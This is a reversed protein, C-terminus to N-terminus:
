TGSSKVIRQQDGGRVPDSGGADVHQKRAGIVREVLGFVGYTSNPAAAFTAAPAQAAVEDQEAYCFKVMGLEIVEDTL